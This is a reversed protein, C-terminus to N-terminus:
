RIITPPTVWPEACPGSTASPRWDRSTNASKCAPRKPQFPSSSVVSKRLPTQNLTLVKTNRSDAQYSSLSAPNPKSVWRHMTARHLHIPHHTKLKRLASRPGTIPVSDSSQRLASKSLKVDVLDITDSTSCPVSGLSPLALQSAPLLMAAPLHSDVLRSDALQSDVTSNVCKLTACTRKPPAKQAAPNKSHRLNQHDAGVALTEHWPTLFLLTNLPALFITAM